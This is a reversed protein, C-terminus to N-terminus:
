EYCDCVEWHYAYDSNIKHTDLAIEFIEDISNELNNFQLLLTYFIPIYDITDLKAGISFKPKKLYILDILTQFNYNNQNIIGRLRSELISFYCIPCPNCWSKKSFNSVYLSNNYFFINKIPLNKAYLSSNLNEYIKLDFPNWFIFICDSNDALNIDELVKEQSYCIINKFRNGINNIFTNKFTSNNTILTVNEFKLEQKQEEQILHENLLFTYLEHIDDISFFKLAIKDNLISISEKEIFELMKILNNNTVIITASKSQVVYFDETSHLLFTEIRYNM